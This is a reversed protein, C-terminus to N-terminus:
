KGERARERALVRVQIQSKIAGCIRTMQQKASEEDSLNEDYMNATDGGVFNVLDLWDKKCLRVSIKDPKNSKSSM